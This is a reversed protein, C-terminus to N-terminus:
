LMKTYGRLMLEDDDSCTCYCVTGITKMQDIGNWDFFFDLTVGAWDTLKFSLSLENTFALWILAIHVPETGRQNIIPSTHHSLPISPPPSRPISTIPHKPPQLLPLCHYLSRLLFLHLSPSSSLSPTPWRDLPSHVTQGPLSLPGKASVVRACMRTCECGHVSVYTYAWMFVGCVCQDNHVSACVCTRMCIPLCLHACVLPM